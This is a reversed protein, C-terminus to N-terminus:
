TFRVWSGLNTAIFIMKFPTAATITTPQGSILNGNGSVTLATVTQTTAVHIIQGNLPSAPMNITGSALTGAPNMVLFTDRNALTITFGTAPTQQNEGRLGNAGTIYVMGAIGSGAAAGGNIAVNGGLANATVTSAAGAINVHGGTGTTVGQGGNINVDGGSAGAGGGVGANLSLAGGSGATAAGGAITLGIGTTNSPSRITGATGAEGIQLINTTAAWTFGADAGFAGANNFQVQTDAGAVAGGAAITTWTPPAGAGASTFVQGNTGSTTGALLWTGSADISLRAASNTAVGLTNAAPLYLGNTATTSGTVSFRSAIMAGSHTTTGNGLFTYSPNSSANGLAINSIATTTGRTVALWNVGAGDADTRTRGTLVSANVDIDWLKLDAGVDTENLLLRPEAFSWTHIGTWTPVIAQSLAPAGDSRIATAAVGNVAALGVTGTPNAVAAGGSANVIVQGPTATSLTVNTGATLVRSNALGVETSFTVFDETSPASGGGGGGTIGPGEIGSM